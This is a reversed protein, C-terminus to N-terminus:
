KESSQVIGITACKVLNNSTRTYTLGLRAVCSEHPVSKVTRPTNTTRDHLIAYFPGEM